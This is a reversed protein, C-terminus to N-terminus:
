MKLIPILYSDKLATTILLHTITGKTNVKEM